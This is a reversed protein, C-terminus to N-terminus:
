LCFYNNSISFKQGLDYSKNLHVLYNLCGKSHIMLGLKISTMQSKILSLLFATTNLQMKLRELSMMCKLWVIYWTAGLPEM